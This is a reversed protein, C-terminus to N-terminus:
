KFRSHQRACTRTHHRPQPSHSALQICPHICSLTPRPTSLLRAQNPHQATSHQTSSRGLRTLSAIETQTYTTDRLRSIRTSQIPNSQFPNYQVPNSKPVSISKARRDSRRSPAGQLFSPPREHHLPPAPHLQVSWSSPQEVVHVTIQTAFSVAILEARFLCLTKKPRNSQSRIMMPEPHAPRNAM